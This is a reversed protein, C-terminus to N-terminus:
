QMKKEAEDNPDQKGRAGKPARCKKCTHGLILWFWYVNLGCLLANCALFGAALADSHARGSHILALMDGWWLASAPLGVAIRAVFFTATFAAGVLTFPTGQDLGLSQMIRMSHMFPSSWEFLLCVCGMWHLFPRLGGGFVFLCSVAHALFAGGWGEVLCVVVDWLFYGAAAAFLAQARDDHGYLSTRLEPAATLLTWTAASATTLAFVISIARTRLETYSEKKSTTKVWSVFGPAVVPLVWDAVAQAGFCAAAVGGVVRWERLVPTAWEVLTEM